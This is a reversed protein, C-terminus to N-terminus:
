SVSFTALTWLAIFGYLFFTFSCLSMSIFRRCANFYAEVIKFELSLSLMTSGCAEVDHPFKIHVETDLV